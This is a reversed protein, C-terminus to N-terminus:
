RARVTAHVARRREGAGGGPTVSACFAVSGTANLRSSGKLRAAASPAVASLTLRSRSPVGEAASGRRFSATSAREARQAGTRAREARQSWGASARSRDISSSFRRGSSFPGGAPHILRCTCPLQWLIMCVGSPRNLSGVPQQTATLVAALGRPVNTFWGGSM